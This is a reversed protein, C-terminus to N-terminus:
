YAAQAAWLSCSDLFEEKRMPDWAQPSFATQGAWESARALNAEALWVQVRLSVVWPIHYAYGEQEVLAELQHLAQHASQQLRQLWDSAEELRNWAYFLILLNYSLYGSWITRMGSQEILALTELCEQQARHWQAAQPYTNALM